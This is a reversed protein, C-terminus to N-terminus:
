KEELLKAANTMEFKSLLSIAARKEHQIDHFQIKQVNQENIEFLWPFKKLAYEVLTIGSKSESDKISLLISLLAYDSPYDLTLRLKKINFESHYYIIEKKYKENNRIYLTVHEKDSEKLNSKCSIEKLTSGRIVEVNMGIPLGETCTYHNNHHVHQGVVSEIIHIDQLPNDGTIRIVHDYKDNDIISVFRSLVNNEDGQFYKIDNQRCYTLIPADSLDGTTAVIIDAGIKNHKLQSIIWDIVPRGSVLPIPLMAKGPLRSSNMRVQIIFAIKKLLLGAAM